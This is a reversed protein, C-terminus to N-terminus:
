FPCRTFTRNCELESEIPRKDAKIGDKHGVYVTSGSKIETDFASNAIVRSFEEVSPIDGVLERRRDILGPRALDLLTATVTGAIIDGSVVVFSVGYKRLAGARARLADEGARKSVAVPEYEPIGNHQGHFHAYHSTVFVIRGGKEMLPLACEIIYMQADRNLRMPYDGPMNKEMGGSANLILVDLKGFENLITYFMSRVDKNNTIDAQVPMAKVGFAQAALAVKEARIRKSRYNIIVHSGNEAVLRATEAGVGRSAGTILVVRTESGM